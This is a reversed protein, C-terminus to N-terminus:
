RTEKASGNGSSRSNVTITRYTVSEGDSHKGNPRRKVPSTIFGASVMETLNRWMEWAQENRLIVVTEDASIKLMLQPTTGDHRILITNAETTTM